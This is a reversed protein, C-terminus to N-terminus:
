TQHVNVSTESYPILEIKLTSAIFHTIQYFSLLRLKELIYHAHAM